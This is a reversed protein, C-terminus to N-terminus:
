HDGKGHKKGHGKPTKHGGPATPESVVTLTVTSGQDVRGTPSVAKVTGVTGAGPAHTITVALRKAKLEKSVQDAPRGLYDSAVVRVQHSGSTSSTAGTSHTAPPASTAASGCARVLLIVLLAVALLGLLLPWRRRASSDTLYAPAADETAV